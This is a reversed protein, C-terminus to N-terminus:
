GGTGVNWNFGSGGSVDNNSGKNTTAALEALGPYNGGPQLLRDSIPLNNLQYVIQNTSNRRYLEEFLKLKKDDIDMNRGWYKFMSKWTDKDHNGEGWVADALDIDYIDPNFGPHSNPRSLVMNMYSKIATDNRPIGKDKSGLFNTVLEQDMATKNDSRVREPDAVMMWGTQLTGKSDPFTVQKYSNKYKERMCEADCEEGEQPIRPLYNTFNVDGTGPVYGGKKDYQANPITNGIQMIDGMMKTQDVTGDFITHGEKAQNNLGASDFVFEEEFREMKDLRNQIEQESEDPYQLKLGERAVEEDFKFNMKITGTPSFNFDYSYGDAETFGPKGAYINSALMADPYQGKDFNKLDEWDLQDGVQELMTHMKQPLGQYVALRKKLQTCNYMQAGDGFDWEMGGEQSCEPDAGWTAMALDGVQSSYNDFFADVKGQTYENGVSNYQVQRAIYNSELQDAALALREGKAKEALAEQEEKLKKAEIKDTVTEAAKGTSGILDTWAKASGTPDVYKPNQYSM